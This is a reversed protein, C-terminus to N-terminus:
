GEKSQQPSLELVERANCCLSHALVVRHNHHRVLWHPQCVPVVAALRRTVGGVESAEETVVKTHQGTCMCMHFLPLRPSAQQFARVALITQSGASLNRWMSILHFSLGLCNDHERTGSTGSSSKNALLHVRAHTAPLPNAGSCAADSRRVRGQGRCQWQRKWRQGDYCSGPVDVLTHHRHLM